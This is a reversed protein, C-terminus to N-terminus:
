VPQRGRIAQVRLLLTGLGFVTAVAIIFGGVAPLWGVILLILGGILFNV